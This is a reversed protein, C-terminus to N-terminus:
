FCTKFYLLKIDSVMIRGEETAIDVAVALRKQCLESDIESQKEVPKNLCTEKTKKLPKIKELQTKLRQEIM